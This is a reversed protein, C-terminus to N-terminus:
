FINILDYSLLHSNHSQKMQKQKRSIHKNLTYTKGSIKLFHNLDTPIRGVMEFMKNWRHKQIPTCNAIHGATEILENWLYRTLTKVIFVAGTRM